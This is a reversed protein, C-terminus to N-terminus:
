LGPIEDMGTFFTERPLFLWFGNAEALNEAIFRLAEPNPGEAGSGDAKMAGRRTLEDILDQTPHGEIEM